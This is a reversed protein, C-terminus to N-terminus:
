CGCVTEVLVQLDSSLGGSVGQLWLKLLISNEGSTLGVGLNDLVGVTNSSISDWQLSLFVKKLISFFLYLVSCSKVNWHKRYV